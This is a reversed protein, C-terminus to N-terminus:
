AMTWDVQAAQMSQSGEVHQSGCQQSSLPWSDNSSDSATQGSIPADAGSSILQHENEGLLSERDRVVLELWKSDSYMRVKLQEIAQTAAQKEQQLASKHVSLDVLQADAARAELKRIDRQHKTRLAERESEQIIALEEIMDAKVIDDFAIEKSPEAFKTLYEDQDARHRALTQIIERANRLRLEHIREQWASKDKKQDDLFAMEQSVIDELEHQTSGMEATHRASIAKRQARHVTNLHARLMAYHGTIAEVRTAELRELRQMEKALRAEEQAVREREEREAIERQQREQEIAEEIERREAEAVAEIAAQVEAEEANVIVRRAALEDRRRIVPIVGTSLRHSYPSSATTDSHSSGTRERSVVSSENTHLETKKSPNERSMTLTVPQRHEYKPELLSARIARSQNISEKVIACIEQPTGDPVEALEYPLDIEQWRTKWTEDNSSGTHIVPIAFPSESSGEGNISSLQSTSELLHALAGIRRSPRM